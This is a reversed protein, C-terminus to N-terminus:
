KGMEILERIQENRKNYGDLTKLGQPLNKMADMFTSFGNRLEEYFVKTKKFAKSMDDQHLWAFAAIVIVVTAFVILRRHRGKIRKGCHKCFVAAKRIEEACYPCIRVDASKSDM